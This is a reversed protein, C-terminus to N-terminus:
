NETQGRYNSSNVNKATPLQTLGGPEMLEWQNIKEALIYLFVDM